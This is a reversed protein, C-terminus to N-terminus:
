NCAFDHACSGETKRIDGFCRALVPRETEWGENKRGYDKPKSPRGRWRKLSGNTDDRGQKMADDCKYGLEDWAISLAVKGTETLSKWRTGDVIHRSM